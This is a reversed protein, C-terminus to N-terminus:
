RLILADSDGWALSPHPGSRFAARPSLYLMPWITIRFKSGAPRPTLRFVFRLIVYAVPGTALLLPSYRMMFPKGTAAKLRLRQRPEVM